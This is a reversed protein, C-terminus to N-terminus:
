NICYEKHNERYQNIILPLCQKLEKICYELTRIKKKNSMNKLVIEGTNSQFVQKHELENRKDYIANFGSGVAKLDEIKELHNYANREKVRSELVVIEEGLIQQILHLLLVDSAKLINSMWDKVKRPLTKRCELSIDLCNNSHDKLTHYDSNKLIKGLLIMLQEKTIDEYLSDFPKDKEGILNDAVKRRERESIGSKFRQGFEEKSSKQSKFSM